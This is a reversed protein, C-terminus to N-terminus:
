GIGMADSFPREGWGHKKVDISRSQVGIIVIQCRVDSDALKWKRLINTEKKLVQGMKHVESM